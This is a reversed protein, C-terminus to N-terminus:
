ENQIGDAAVYKYIISLRECEFKYFRISLSVCVNDLAYIYLYFEIYQIVLLNKNIDRFSTFIRFLIRYESKKGKETKKENKM